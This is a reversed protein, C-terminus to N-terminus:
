RLYFLRLDQETPMFKKEAIFAKIDKYPIGTLVELSKYHVTHMKKYHLKLLSMTQKVADDIKDYYQLSEEEKKQAQDQLEVIRQQLATKLIEREKEEEELQELQWMLQPLESIGSALENLVADRIVDPRSKGGRKHLIGLAEWAWPWIYIPKQVVIDFNIESKLGLQEKLKVSIENLQQQDM